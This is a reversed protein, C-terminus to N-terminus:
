RMSRLKAAFNSCIECMRLNKPMKKKCIDFIKHVKAAAFTLMVYFLAFRQATFYCILLM